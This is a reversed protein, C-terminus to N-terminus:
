HGIMDVFLILVYINFLDSCQGSRYLYVSVLRPIQVHVTQRGTLSMCM